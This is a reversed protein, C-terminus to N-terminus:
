FGEGPMIHLSTASAAYYAVWNADRPKTIVVQMGAPIPYDTVGATVANTDGVRVYATFAGLNTLCLTASGLTMQTNASTTTPAVTVGRNYSPTFPSTYFPM